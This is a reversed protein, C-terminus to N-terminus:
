EEDQNVVWVFECYDDGAMLSAKKRELSIRPNYGEIMAFDQECYLSGIDLEGEESFFAALPCSTIKKYVRGEEDLDEPYSEKTILNVPVDYFKHFNELTLEEGAEKVKGSIREGRIRGFNRIGELLIARGEQGYRDIIEKAISLYLLGMQRATQGLAERIEQESIEM